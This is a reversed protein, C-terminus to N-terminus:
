SAGKIAVEKAWKYNPKGAPNRPVENVYHVERPIKYGAIKSRCHTQIEELSPKAASRAAAVLVVRSGWKEDPVGVVVCDYIAEHAKAAAEVEEPFIKEGGSNISVSGRGLMTIRGDAEIQAFDGPMSYRIGDAATIFAGASKEPDKYYEFPIYGKRAVKGIKGDGAECLTLTKEDLVVTGPIPTVTPGGGTMETKGKEVITMGNGGVETAGISDILMWNPFAELYQDKIAPSFIAGSSVFVMMSSTDTKTAMADYTEIMPRGMADGVIFISNVKEREILQWVNDPEFNAMIVVKGGEFARSICAWQTAGHMLPAISMVTMSADKGRDIIEQPHEVAVQTMQDVGGGLAFMVNRHGWVVGKPMGTTGGTYLMYHDQESREAFDRATSQGQLADEYTTYEIDINASNADTGDEIVIIHELKPLAGKLQNVLPLFQRQVVLVKLDANDFMYNLEEAVFRYNINAYIARLKLTAWISEVWEVCNLAYIGVHDHPSIGKSQLHHALQNARDEMEGYTRQQDDCVLYDRDRYHDVALEWTDAINFSM